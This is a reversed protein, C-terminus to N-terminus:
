RVRRVVVLLLSRGVQQQLGQSRPNISYGDGYAVAHRLLRGFPAGCPTVYDATARSSQMYSFHRRRCTAARAAYHEAYVKPNTAAPASPRTADNDGLTV